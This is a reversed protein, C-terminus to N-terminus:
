LGNMQQAAPQRMKLDPHDTGLAASFVTVRIQHFFRDVLEPKLGTDLDKRRRAINRSEQGFGIKQHQGGKDGFREAAHDNLCASHSSRHYRGPQPADPINNIM